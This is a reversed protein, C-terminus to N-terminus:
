VLCARCSFVSVPDIDPRTLDYLDSWWFIVGCTSCGDRTPTTIADSVWEACGDCILNNELVDVHFATDLKPDSVRSACALCLAEFKNASMTKDKRM